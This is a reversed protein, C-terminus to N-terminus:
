RDDRVLALADRARLRDGGRESREPMRAILAIRLAGMAWAVGFLLGFGNEHRTLWYQGGLFFLIVAAHWTTRITGFFRGIREPEMYGRLLPFWVLDSLDLGLATFALCAFVVAVATDGGLASISGFFVLPLSAVLALSQGAILLSRKPYWTILRLAPLQIWALGMLLGSQVGILAETAGLSVLALTPLQGTFATWFTMAPVNSAIALRRGRAREQDSLPASVEPLKPAVSM